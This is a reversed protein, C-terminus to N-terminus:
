FIEEATKKGARFSKVNMNDLELIKKLEARTDGQTPGTEGAARIAEISKLLNQRM